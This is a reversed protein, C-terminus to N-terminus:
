PTDGSYGSRLHNVMVAVPASANVVLTGDSRYFTVYVSITYNNVNQISLGSNWGSYGKYWLPINVPWSTVVVAPYGSWLLTNDKHQNITAAVPNSGGSILVSLVPDCLGGPPASSIASFRSQINNFPNYLCEHGDDPDRYSATLNNTVSSANQIAM